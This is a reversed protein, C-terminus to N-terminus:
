ARRTTAQTNIAHPLGKAHTLAAGTARKALVARGLPLNRLATGIFSPEGSIDDLQSPLVTTVAVAPDRGQQTLRAPAYVVFADFADPSTFPQFDRVFLWLAAPKPKIVARTDPEPRFTRVM